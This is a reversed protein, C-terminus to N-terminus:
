PVPMAIPIPIWATWETCRSPRKRGWGYGAYGKKRIVVVPKTCAGEGGQSVPDSSLLVGLVGGAASGLGAAQM